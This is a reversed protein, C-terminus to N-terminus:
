RAWQGAASFETCSNATIGPVSSCLLSLFDEKPLFGPIRLLEQGASNVFILTPTQQITFAARMEHEPYDSEPSVSCHGTNGTPTVSHDQEQSRDCVTKVVPKKM